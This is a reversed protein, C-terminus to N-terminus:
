HTTFERGPLDITIRTCCHYVHAILPDPSHFGFCRHSILRIRSNLGELRGNPM